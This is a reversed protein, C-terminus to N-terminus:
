LRFSVRSSLPTSIASNRLLPPRSRLFSSHLDLIALPESQVVKTVQKAVPQYVLGLDFRLCHLSNQTMRSDLRREIEISLLVAIFSPYRLTFEQFCDSYM